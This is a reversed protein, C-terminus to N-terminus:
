FDYSGFLVWFNQDKKIWNPSGLIKDGTEYKWVLKGSSAELAYLAGDSSGIFVKQDLVLPSSEIPGSTKYSWLKKGDGLAVAYINEDASGFYVRDGAIAASSKVAGGTKFTWLTGLKDPLQGEAVGVLGPSGRFMPWDAAGTPTVAIFFLASAYLVGAWPASKPLAKM